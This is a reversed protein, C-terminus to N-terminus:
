VKVNPVEPLTWRSTVESLEPKPMEKQFVTKLKRKILDMQSPSLMQDEAIEFIGYLYYCFNEPTM